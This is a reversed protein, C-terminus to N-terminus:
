KFANEIVKRNQLYKQEEVIPVYGSIFHAKAEFNLPPDTDLAELLAKEKRRLAKVSDQWEEVYNENIFGLLIERVDGKKQSIEKLTKCVSELQFDKKGKLTLSSKIKNGFLNGFGKIL